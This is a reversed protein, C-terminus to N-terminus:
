VEQLDEIIDLLKEIIATPDDRLIFDIDFVDAGTDNLEYQDLVNYIREATTM